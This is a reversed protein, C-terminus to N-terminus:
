AARVVRLAAATTWLALALLGVREAHWVLRRRFIERQRRERAGRAEPRARAAGLGPPVGGGERASQWAALLLAVAVAAVLHGGQLLALAPDAALTLMVAMIAVAAFGLPRRIRRDTVSEMADM